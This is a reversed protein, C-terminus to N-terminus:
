ARNLINIISNFWSMEPAEPYQSSESWVQSELYWKVRLELSLAKLTLIIDKHMQNTKLLWCNQKHSRNNDQRSCSMIKLLTKRLHSIQFCNERRCLMGKLVNAIYFYM